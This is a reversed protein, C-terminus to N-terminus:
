RDSKSMKYFVTYSIVEDPNKAPEMWSLTVYRNVVQAVLDRPPGPILAKLDSGGDLHEIPFNSSSSSSTSKIKDSLNTSSKRNNANQESRENEKQTLSHLLTNPNINPGIPHITGEDEDDDDYEDSNQDYDESNLEDEASSRDKSQLSHFMSKSISNNPLKSASSQIPSDAAIVEVSKLPIVPKLKASAKEKFKKGKKGEIKKM